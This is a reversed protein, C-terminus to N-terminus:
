ATQDPEKELLKTTNDTVSHPELDNTDLWRGTGPTFQAQRTVFEANADATLQPKDPTGLSEQAPLALHPPLPPRAGAEFMLAYAIRLLGAGGLLFLVLGAPWPAGKFLFVFLIGIAPFLVLAM